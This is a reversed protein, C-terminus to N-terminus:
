SLGPVRDLFRRAGDKSPDYNNVRRIESEGDIRRCQSDLDIGSLREFRDLFVILDDMAHSTERVVVYLRLRELQGYEPSVERISIGLAPTLKDPPSQLLKLAKVVTGADQLQGISDPYYEVEYGLARIM